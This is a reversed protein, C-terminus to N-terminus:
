FPFCQEQSLPEGGGGGGGELSAPGPGAKSHRDGGYLRNVFGLISKMAAAM